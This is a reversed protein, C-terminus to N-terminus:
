GMGAAGSTGLHDGMKNSSQGLTAKSWLKFSLHQMWCPLAVLRPWFLKTGNKTMFQKACIIIEWSIIIGFIGFYHTARNVLRPAQCNLGSSKRTKSVRNFCFFAILLIVEWCRSLSPVWSSLLAQSQNKWRIMKLLPNKDPPGRIMGEITRLPCRFLFCGNSETSDSKAWGSSPRWYPVSSSSRSSLTM